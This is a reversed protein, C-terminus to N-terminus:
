VTSLLIIVYRLGRLCSVLELAQLHQRGFVNSVATVKLQMGMRCCVNINLRVDSVYLTYVGISFLAGEVEIPLYVKTGKTLYKTDM